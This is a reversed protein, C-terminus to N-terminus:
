MKVNGDTKRRLKGKSPTECQILHITPFENINTSKMQDKAAEHFQSHTVTPQVSCLSKM